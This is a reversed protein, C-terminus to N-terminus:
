RTAAPASVEPPCCILTSNKAGSPVPSVRREPPMRSRIGRALLSLIQKAKGIIDPCHRSTKLSVSWKWLAGPIGLIDWLM